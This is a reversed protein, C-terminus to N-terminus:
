DKDSDNADDRMLTVHLPAQTLIEEHSLLQIWYKGEKAFPVNRLAVRQEVVRLPDSATIPGGLNGIVDGTDAHEIRLHLDVKRGVNTLQFFVDIRDCAAPIQNVHLENFVGAIIWEGTVDDRFVREAILLSNVTSTEPM